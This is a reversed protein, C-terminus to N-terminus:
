IGFINYYRRVERTFGYDILVPKGKIIGWSTHRQLDVTLLGNNQIMNRLDEIQFLERNNKVKYYDWVESFSKIKEAKEMILLEYDESVAAIRAFYRTNNKSAIEHEAKNQAIGKRNKAAKIVYGNNLDYVYRGSGSGIRKYKEQEINVKIKNFDIAM